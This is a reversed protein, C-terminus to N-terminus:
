WDWTPCRVDMVIIPGQTIPVGVKPQELLSSTCWLCTNRLAESEGLQERGINSRMDRQVHVAWLEPVEVDEPNKGVRIDLHHCAKVSLALPCSCNWDPKYVVEVGLALLIAVGDISLIFSIVVLKNVWREVAKVHLPLNFHQREHLGPAEGRCAETCSTSEL